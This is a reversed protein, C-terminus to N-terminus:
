LNYLQKWADGHRETAGEQGKRFKGKEWKGVPGQIHSCLPGDQRGAVIAEGYLWTWLLAPAACDHVSWVCVGQAAATTHARQRQMKQTIYSGETIFSDMSPLFFSACAPTWYELTAKSFQVLTEPCLDMCHLGRLNLLPGQLPKLLNPWCYTLNSQSHAHQVSDKSQM